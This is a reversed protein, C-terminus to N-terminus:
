LVLEMGPLILDPNEGILKRNNEYLEQWRIGEGLIERAICWLCDGKQVIYREPQPLAEERDMDPLEMDSMAKTIEDSVHRVWDALESDEAVAENYELNIENMWDRIEERDCCEKITKELWAEEESLEYDCLLFWGEEGDSRALLTELGPLKKKSGNVDVYMDYSVFVIRDEGAPYVALDTVRYECLGIEALVVARIENERDQTGVAERVAEADGTERAAFYALVQEELAEERVTGTFKEATESGEKSPLCLGFCSKELFLIGTVLAALLRRYRKTSKGRNMGNGGQWTM